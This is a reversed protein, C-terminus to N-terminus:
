EDAVRARQERYEVASVLQVRGAGREKVAVVPLEDHGAQNDGLHTVKRLCLNARFHFRLEKVGYHCALYLDLIRGFLCWRQFAWAPSAGRYRDVGGYGLAPM